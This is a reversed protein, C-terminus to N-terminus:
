GVGKKVNMNKTYMASIYRLSILWIKENQSESLGVISGGLLSFLMNNNAYALLQGSGDDIEDIEHLMMNREIHYYPCNLVLHKADEQEYMDCLNCMKDVGYQRKLRIDDGKLITAHCVIRALIECKRMLEPHEDSIKWWSLYRCEKCVGKLLDLSKHLRFEINWYTDELTWGRKWVMDRWIEKSFYHQREVMNKVENTLGFLSCVNLIDFVPSRYLNDIGIQEHLFYFRARECFVIKQVADDEMVLITRLFLIKKIQIIRELRMWGLGFYSCANPIRPHFRQVKKGVYNQFDDILKSKVDDVVWLESGYLAIPVVITWFVVNCTAMTLGGKRIGIGTLANFTRRGKSIREEIGSNDDDFITNRIGVHDYNQREKVRDPGLKFIREESNRVHERMTEGFVLIGSKKANLDYRWTCGHDHVISMARDTRNKSSCCTAIDNAYGLPTSPTDYIKCCLDSDKLKVLLSNVFITYKMLSMFGGQHIGRKLEYWESFKGQIKVCCKFDVYCRYLLRWTRGKIGLDFIQKFLGDIWVTDFAKAVDFYAVFCKSRSEMSAAVTELLNFATHICSAGGRCAGQLESIVRQGVWWESIRHWLLIEFLKNFTPLLTIGRYNNPDLICTDKGKYLPVQVGRKFGKPIYEKVRIANYLDCLLDVMVPGAFILHESMVEDYGPSKGKHLTKIASEIENVTFASDLFEDILLEDNYRTVFETVERLHTEDFKDSEKPTGLDAFHTAWVSLVDEIEHVVTKDPRRIASVGKINGRRSNNVIKWFSNKDFSASRTAKLIEENEYTKSLKRLTSLFVKKDEKYEQYSLNDKERPRGSNVWARYSLVKKLKLRSLERNWFPKLNRKYKTRPLIESVRNICITLNEFYMDIDENNKMSNSFSGKLDILSPELVNRYKVAKDFMSMKSWKIWGPLNTVVHSQKIGNLLISASVPVHDSTNLESWDYVECSSVSSMLDAPIAIYDLTSSNMNGEFTDIPGKANAQMNLATLGHRNFLRMVHLGRPTAPRMGRPGGSSGVDGNLDGMLIIQAGCERSEIVESIDDIYSELSECSGQAPLYLSIFYVIAGTKTQLRIACARDLIVDSVVSVGTLRKDWFLAVGGQGRGQGYNEASALRSARSFCTHTDSVEDLKFLRNEYTWHESIALIEHKSLLHRIYPVSTLLGRANWCAMRIELNGMEGYHTPITTM